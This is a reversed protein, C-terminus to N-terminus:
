YYIIKKSLLKFNTYVNEKISPYEPFDLSLLQKDSDSITSEPEPIIFNSIDNFSVQNSLNFEHNYFDPLSINDETTTTKDDNLLEPNDIINCYYKKQSKSIDKKQINNKFFQKFKLLEQIITQNPHATINDILEKIDDLELRDRFTIKDM